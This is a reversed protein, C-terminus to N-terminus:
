NIADIVASREARQEKDLSDQILAIIRRSTKADLQAIELILLLGSPSEVDWQQHVVAFLGNLGTDSKAQELLPHV